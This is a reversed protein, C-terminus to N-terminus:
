VTSSFTVETLETIDLGAVGFFVTVSVFGNVTSVSAM